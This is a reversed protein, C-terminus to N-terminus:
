DLLRTETIEFFQDSAFMIGDPTDTPKGLARPGLQQWVDEYIEVEEMPVDVLEDGEETSETRVYKGDLTRFTRVVRSNGVMSGVCTANKLQPFLRWLAELPSQPETQVVKM